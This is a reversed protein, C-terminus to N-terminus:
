ILGCVWLAPPMFLMLSLAFMCFMCKVTDDERVHKGKYM